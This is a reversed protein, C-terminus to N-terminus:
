WRVPRRPDLEDSFHMCGAMVSFSFVPLGNNDLLRFIGLFKPGRKITNKTTLGSVLVWDEGGKLASAKRSRNVAFIADIREAVAEEGGCSNETASARRETRLSIVLKSSRFRMMAAAGFVHASSGTGENRTWSSMSSRYKWEKGHEAIPRNLFGM